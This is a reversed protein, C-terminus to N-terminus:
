GEQQSAAIMVGILLTMNEEAREQSVGESVLQDVAAKLAADGDPKFSEDDEQGEPPSMHRSFTELARQYRADKMLRGVKDGLAKNQSSERTKGVVMVGVIVLLIPCAPPCSYWFPKSPAHGLIETAQAENLEWVNNADDYLCYRGGWTWVNIWFIGFRSYVYGVKCGSKGTAERVFEQAAPGVDGVHSVDDGTNIILIGRRRAEARQPAFVFLLCVLVPLLGVARKM